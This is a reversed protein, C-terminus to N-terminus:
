THTLANKEYKLFNSKTYNRIKIISNPLCDCSQIIIPNVEKMTLTKNTNIIRLAYQLKSITINKHIRVKGSQKSNSEAM